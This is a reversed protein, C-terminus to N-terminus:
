HQLVSVDDIEYGRNRECVNPEHVRSIEKGIQRMNEATIHHHQVLQDMKETELVQSEKLGYRPM